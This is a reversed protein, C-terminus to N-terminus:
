VTRVLVYGGKVCSRVPCVFNRKLHGCGMAVQAGRYRCVNLFARVEGDDDRVILMPVGCNDDTFYDGPNPIRCGLGMMLPYRRFLIRMERDLRDHDTYTVVPNTDIGDALCTSGADIHEFLVRALEVQLSHEM